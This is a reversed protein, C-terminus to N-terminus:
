GRSPVITAKRLMDLQRRAVQAWSSSSDIKLYASWHRVAQMYEGAKELLLALNYHADAYGPNLEIARAYHERAESLDGKEHFLNGLNFHALSYGPEVEIARRYQRESEDFRKLHYLITGLNVMAGAAAPNSEIAKQYAEMCDAPPLGSEEMDLGRQFWYDSIRKASARAPKPEAPFSKLNDIEATDFDFLFQGTFAEMRRGAVHVEITKGDSTIKLEALPHEVDALKSKLSALARAIRRPAVNKELLSQLSRLAILDSFTYSPTDAVFGQRRWGSLQRSTVGLMRRVDAPSYELKAGNGLV